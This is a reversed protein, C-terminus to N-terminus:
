MFCQALWQLCVSLFSESCRNLQFMFDCVLCVPLLLLISPSPHRLQSLGACVAESYRQRIGGDTEPAQGDWELFGVACTSYPFFVIGQVPHHLLVTEVPFPWNVCTERRSQM